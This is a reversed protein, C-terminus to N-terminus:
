KADCLKEYGDSPFVEELRLSNRASLISPVSRSDQMHQKLELPCSKAQKTGLLLSAAKHKVVMFAQHAGQPTEAM